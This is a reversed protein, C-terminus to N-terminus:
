EVEIVHEGTLPLPPTKFYLIGSKSNVWGSELRALENVSTVRDYLAGDLTAKRINGVGM